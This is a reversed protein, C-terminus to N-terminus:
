RGNVPLKYLEAASTCLVKRKLDLSLEKRDAIAAVAGPFKGDFHWYDSAFIIRDDRIRSCVYALSKEETECSFWCQGAAVYESPKAKGPVGSGLIEYHEDLRDLWFPVWGCNGELFAARLKPHRDFVGGATMCMFAIMQEFPHALAHVFFQSEFRHAGAVNVGPVSASIHICAPLDLQELEGFIYDFDRHDLNKGHVNSPIELGVLGLDEAMHHLELVGDEPSPLPVVGVGKLRRPNYSCFEALWDNFVRALAAGFKQDMVLSSALALTSGFLVSVDIGDVDMHEIRVRPDWMGTRTAHLEFPDRKDGIVRPKKYPTSWIKGELFIRGGGTEFPVNKPALAKFEAPLRAEWDLPSPHMEQVHGDADIVKFPHKM